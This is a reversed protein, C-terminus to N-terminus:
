IAPWKYYTQDRGFGWMEAILATSSIIDYSISFIGLFFVFFFCFWATFFYISGVLKPLFHIYLAASLSSTDWSFGWLPNFHVIQVHGAVPMSYISHWEVQSCVMEACWTKSYHTKFHERSIYAHPWSLDKGHAHAADM